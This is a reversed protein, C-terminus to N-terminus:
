CVGPVRQADGYAGGPSPRADHPLSLSPPPPTFFTFCIRGAQRGALKRRTTDYRVQLAGVRAETAGLDAQTQALRETLRQKDASLVEQQHQAARTKDAADKVREDAAIKTAVVDLNLQSLDNQLLVNQKVLEEVRRDVKSHSEESTQKERNLEEFVLRYRQALDAHQIELSAKEQRLLAVEKTVEQNVLSADNYRHHIQDAGRRAGDLEATLGQQAEKLLQVKLAFAQLAQTVETTYGEFPRSMPRAAGEVTGRGALEHVVVGLRQQQMALYNIQESLGRAEVTLGSVTSKIASLVAVFHEGKRAMEARLETLRTELKYEADRGHAAVRERDHVLDAKERELTAIKVLATEKAAVVDSFRLTSESRQTNLLTQLEGIRGLMENYMQEHKTRESGLRASEQSLRQQMEELQQKSTGKHQDNTAKLLAEYEVIRQDAAELHRSVSELMDELQKVHHNSETLEASKQRLMEEARRWKADGAQAEEDARGQQLSCENLRAQIMVCTEDRQALLLRAEQGSKTLEANHAKLAKIEKQADALAEAEEQLQRLAKEMARQLGIGEDRADRLERDKTAQSTGSEANLHEVRKLSAELDIINRTLQEVEAKHKERDRLLTQELQAVKQQLSANGEELQAARRRQAEAQSSMRLAETSSTKAEDRLVKNEDLVTEYQTVTTNIQKELQLTQETSLRLSGRLQAVETELYQIKDDSSANKVELAEVQLLLANNYEMQHSLNTALSSIHEKERDIFLSESPRLTLSETRQTMSLQRAFSTPNYPSMPLPSGAGGGAPLSASPPLPPEGSGDVGSWTRLLANKLDNVSDM